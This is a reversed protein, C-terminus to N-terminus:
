FNALEPHYILASCEDSSLRGDHNLDHRVFERRYRSAFDKLDLHGKHGRDLRRFTDRLQADKSGPPGFATLWEEEEIVGDGNKDFLRLEQDWKWKLWEQMTLSGAGERAYQFIAAACSAKAETTGPAITAACGTLALALGITAIM